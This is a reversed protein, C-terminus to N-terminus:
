SGTVDGQVHAFFAPWRGHRARERHRRKPERQLPCELKAFKRWAGHLSPGARSLCTNAWDQVLTAAREADPGGRKGIRTILASAVVADHVAGLVRQLDKLARLYRESPADPALDRFFETAYRLKKIRIRLVHLEPPGLDRIKDGLKRAKRDRSRLVDVAFGTIPQTADAGPGDAYRKTYRDIAPGLQSLLKTCRRSALATRARRHCAVRSARAAKTLERMGRRKRLKPPMSAITEEILVDLERAAGLRQQLARLKKVVAPRRSPLGPAFVSFAARLRRIGVRLQHIGEPDDNFRAVAAATTIHTMCGGIVASFAEMVTMAPDLM